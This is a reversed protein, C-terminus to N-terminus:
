AFLKQLFTKLDKPADFFRGGLYGLGKFGDGIIWCYPFSDSLYVECWINKERHSFCPYNSEKFGQPCKDWRMKKFGFSKLIQPYTNGYHYVTDPKNFKSKM